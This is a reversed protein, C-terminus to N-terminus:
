QAVLLRWRSQEVSCNLHVHVGLLKRGPMELLESVLESLGFMILRFAVSTKLNGITGSPNHFINFSKISIKWQTIAYILLITAYKNTIFSSSSSLTEV